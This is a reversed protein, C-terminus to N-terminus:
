RNVAEALAAFMVDYGHDNLHLGDEDHYNENRELLPGYVVRSDVYKVGAQGCAEKLAEYYPRVDDNLIPKEPRLEEKIPQPLFFIVNLGKLIGLLENLNDKFGPLDVQKYPAADNTGVSIIMLDPRLSAIYPGKKVLDDSNWGGAACNYVDYENNLQEELKIIRDKGMRGFHSDGFLVLKKM